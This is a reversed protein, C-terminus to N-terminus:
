QSIIASYLSVADILLGGIDGIGLDQTHPLPPSREAGGKGKREAAGARFPAPGSRGTDAEIATASSGSLAVM